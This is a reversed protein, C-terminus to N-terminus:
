TCATTTVDLFTPPLQEIKQRLKSINNRYKELSGILQIYKRHLPYAMQMENYASLAQDMTQKAIELERDIQELTAGYGLVKRSAPVKEFNAGGITEFNPPIRQKARDKAASMVEQFFFYKELADQALCYTSLNEKCPERGIVLGDKKILPPPAFLAELKAPDTATEKATLTHAMKKSRENFLENMDRHYNQVIEDVNDLDVFGSVAANSSNKAFHTVVVIGVTLLFISLNRLIKKFNQTRFM